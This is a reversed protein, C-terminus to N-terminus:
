HFGVAHHTKHSTMDVGSSSRRSWTCISDNADHYTLKQVVARPDRRASAERSPFLLIVCRADRFPVSRFLVSRYDFRRRLRVRARARVCEAIPVDMSSTNCITVDPPVAAFDLWEVGATVAQCM